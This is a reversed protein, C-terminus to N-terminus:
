LINIRRAFGPNTHISTNIYYRRTNSESSRWSPMVIAADRQTTMEIEKVSSPNEIMCLQEVSLARWAHSNSLMYTHKMKWMLCLSKLCVLMNLLRSFNSKPGFKLTYTQAHLKWKGHCASPKQFMCVHKPAGRLHNKNKLKWSLKLTYRQTHINPKRHCVSPKWVYM